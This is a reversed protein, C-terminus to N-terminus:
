TDTTKNADNMDRIQRRLDYNETMVEQLMKIHEKHRNEMVNILSELETSWSSMKQRLLSGHYWVYNETIGEIIIHDKIEFPQTQEMEREKTKLKVTVDIRAVM